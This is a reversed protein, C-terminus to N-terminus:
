VHEGHRSALWAVGRVVRHKMKPERLRERMTRNLPVVERDEVGPCM